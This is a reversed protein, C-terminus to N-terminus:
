TDRGTTTISVIDDDARIDYAFSHSVAELLSSTNVSFSLSMLPPVAGAVSNRCFEIQMEGSVGVLLSTSMGLNCGPTIDIAEVRSIEIMRENNVPDCIVLSAHLRNPRTPDFEEPPATGVVSSFRRLGAGQARFRMTETVMNSNEAYRHLQVCRVIAPSNDDHISLIVHFSTPDGLVSRITRGIINELADQMMGAQIYEVSSRQNEADDEDKINKIRLNLQNWANAPFNEVRCPTPQPLVVATLSNPTQGPDTFNQGPDTFNQGPDTFNQGGPPHAAPSAFGPTTGTRTPMRPTERCFKARCVPCVMPSICWHWLLCVASFRHGCCLEVGTFEPCLQQVRLNPAFSLRADAIPELAICCEEGEGVSQGLALREAAANFLRGCWVKYPNGDVDL